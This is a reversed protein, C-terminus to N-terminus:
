LSDRTYQNNIQRLVQLPNGDRLEAPLLTQPMDQYAIFRAFRSIADTGVSTTTAVTCAPYPGGHQQSACVEVGTPYGNIILRGVKEELVQILPAALSDESECHITATLNAHISQAIQLMEEESACAVYLSVPGFVEEHLQSDNLFAQATTKLLGNHPQLGNEDVSGGGTILTTQEHKQLQEVGARLGKAISPHLLHGQPAENLAQSLQETFEASELAVIVGPSTCFQGTGLSISAALGSAIAQQRAALADHTIFVPNTSGMEAYVPIPVERQAALDMIARGATLSGTFGIAEVAPHQVLTQALSVSNGQLMAITSCSINCAQMAKEAAIMCLESTAPHAPHSKIVVPNGAALASATDGGLVGFALPFNSAPFVLVPGIPRLMRRLDPKPPTRETDSSDLTARVWSGEKLLAAFARLQNCTRARQGTLRPLGLGTEQNATELLVDGLAEIESALQEIFEARQLGSLAKYAPYAERAATVALKADADEANHWTDIISNTTPNFNTFVDGQTDLWTGNIFSQKSLTPNKSSMIM